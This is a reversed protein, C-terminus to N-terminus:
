DSFDFFAPCGGEVVTTTSNRLVVYMPLRSTRRSSSSIFKL